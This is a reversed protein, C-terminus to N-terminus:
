WPRGIWVGLIEILLAGTNAGSHDGVIEWFALVQEQLNWDADIWHGMMTLYPDFAQSTGANFTFSVRSDLIKFKEALLGRVHISKTYIEDTITTRSPLDCSSTSPQQYNLMAKFSDKEVISFSQFNSILM